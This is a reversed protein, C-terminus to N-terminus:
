KVAQIVALRQMFIEQMKQAIEPFNILIKMVNDRDLKACKCPTVSKVTATRPIVAMLAMEGFYSGPKLEGVKRGDVYVHLEGSIIFYMCDGPDGQRFIVEGEVFYCEKMAGAIRALLGETKSEDEYQNLFPVQLLLERWNHLKIEKADENNNQKCSCKLSVEQLNTNLVSFIERQNYIRGRYMFNISDRLKVGLEDPIEKVRIYENIEDIRARFRGVPTEADASVAAVIGTFTALLLASLSALGAGGWLGLSSTPVFPATVPFTNAIGAYIGWTYQRWSTENLIGIAAWDMDYREDGYIMPVIFLICAHYHFYVVMALLFTNISMFSIGVNFISRYASAIKRQFPTQMLKPLRFLRLLRVCFALKPYVHRKGHLIHFIIDIPITTIIDMFFEVSTLHVRLSEKLPLVKEQSEEMELTLLRFFTDAALLLTIICSTALFIFDLSRFAVVAPAYFLIFIYTFFIFINWIAAIRSFPHFGAFGTEQKKPVTQDVKGGFKNFREEGLKILGQSMRRGYSVRPHDKKPDQVNQNFTARPLSDKKGQPLLPVPSPPAFTPPSISDETTQVLLPTPSTTDDSPVSSDLDSEPAGLSAECRVAAEEAMASANSGDSDSLDGNSQPVLRKQAQRIYASPASSTRTIARTQRPSTILGAQDDGTQSIKRARKLAEMKLLMELQENQEEMQYLIELQNGMKAKMKLLLAHIGKMAMYQATTMSSRPEM